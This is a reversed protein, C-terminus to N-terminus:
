AQVVGGGGFPTKIIPQWIFTRLENTLFFIVIRAGATESSSLSDSIVHMFIILFFNILNLMM